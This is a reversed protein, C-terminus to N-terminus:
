ARRVRGRCRRPPMQDVARWPPPTSATPRRCRRSRRNMPIPTQTDITLQVGERTGSGHDRGPMAPGLGPRTRRVDIAAARVERAGTWEM